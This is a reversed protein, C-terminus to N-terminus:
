VLWVSWGAGFVETVIRQLAHRNDRGTLPATLAVYALQDAQHRLRRVLHTYRGVTLAALIGGGITAALWDVHGDNALGQVLLLVPAVLLTTALVALRGTTGLQATGPRSLTRMSPHRAAAAWLVYSLLWGEDVLGGDYAFFTTLVAFATDSALLLLVAAVLMRHSASRAVGTTMLWALMAVLLIDGVPYGVGVWRAAASTDQETVIPRILFTWSLLGLGTTVIGADLAGAVGGTGRRSRIALALGVTILPYSALYLVDAASPFPSRHLVKDYVSWVIDGSVWVAQGAAMWWWPGPREPRHRRLALVIMLASVLGVADYVVTAAVSGNPLLLYGALVPVAVALWM